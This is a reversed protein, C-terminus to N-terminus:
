QNEAGACADRMIAMTKDAAASAAREMLTLLGVGDDGASAAGDLFLVESTAAVGLSSPWAFVFTGRCLLQPASSQPQSQATAAAATAAQQRPADVVVGTAEELATLDLVQVLASPAAGGGKGAAGAAGAPVVVPLVAPVPARMVGVSAAAITTLCPIAADLVAAMAANVCCADVAGDQQLIQLTLSIVCRPFRATDIVSALCRRVLSAVRCDEAAQQRRQRVALLRSAGGGVTHVTGPRQVAVALTAADYREAFAKATCPGHLLALVCTGGARFRASGGAGALEGLALSVPRLSMATRGDRRLTTAM